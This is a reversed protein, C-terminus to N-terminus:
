RYGGYNSKKGDSGNDRETTPREVLNPHLKSKKPQNRQRQKSTKFIQVDTEIAGVKYVVCVCVCDSKQVM